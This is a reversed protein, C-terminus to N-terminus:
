SEGRKVKEWWYLWVGWFFLLPVMSAIHHPFVIEGLNFSNFNATWTAIDALEYIHPHNEFHSFPVPNISVNGRIVNKLVVDVLPNHVDCPIENGVITIATNILVSMVGLAIFIKRYRKLAWVTLLFMFPFAPLLYRPGAAAGGHWAYTGAIFLIFVLSVGLCVIAEPLLGKKKCFLAIGPLAMLLVPSSVFLGRYPLLLLQVFMFLSPIGFLRGNVKWMVAPNSYLYSTSLPGGFCVANYFCQAIAPPICGALFLPACRRGRSFSVLYLFVCGAIFVASPEVLIGAAAAFGAAFATRNM